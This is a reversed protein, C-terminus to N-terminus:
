SKNPDPPLSGDAAPAPAEPPRASAQIQRLQEALDVPATGPGVAPQAAARRAVQRGAYVAALGGAGGAILAVALEMALSGVLGGEDYAGTVFRLALLAGKTFLAAGFGLRWPNLDVVLRLGFCLLATLLVLPAHLVLNGAMVGLAGHPGQGMLATALTSEVMAYTILLVAGVSAILQAERIVKKVPGQPKKKM